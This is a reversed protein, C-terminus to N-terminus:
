FVKSPVARCLVLPKVPSLLLSLPRGIAEKNQTGGDVYLSRYNRLFATHHVRKGGTQVQVEFRKRSRNYAVNKYGTTNRKNIASILM